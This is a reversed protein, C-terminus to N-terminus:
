HTTRPVQGIAHAQEAAYGALAMYVDFQMDQPLQDATIRHVQTLAQLVVTARLTRGRLVNLLEDTLADAEQLFAEPTLPTTTFSKSM